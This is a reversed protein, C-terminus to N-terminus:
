GNVIKAGKAVAAQAQAQPLQMTEGTPAQVTVMGGPQGQPPGQPVAPAGSMPPPMGLGPAGQPGGAGPPPMQGPMGGQPPGQLGQQPPPMGAGPPPPQGLGTRQRQVNFQQAQQDATQPMGGTFRGATQNLRDVASAGAAAYPSFDQRAQQYGGQQANLAQQGAAAQSKAADKAASSQKHAAYASSAVSIGIMAGTVGSM